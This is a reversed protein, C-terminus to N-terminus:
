LEILNKNVALFNSFVFHEDKYKYNNLKYLGNPRIRYIQFNLNEFLTYIDHFFTRSGVMTSGFEFQVIKTFKLAKKSGNLCHLEHGETDIKLVDIVRSNLENVWYDDFKIFEVLQSYKQMGEFEKENLREYISALQSKPDDFYINLTENKESLGKNNKIIKEVNSNIEINEFASKLPEFLHLEKVNFEKLLNSSYQGLNAGVDIALDIENLFYKLRKVEDQPKISGAGRGLLQNGLDVIKSIFIMESNINKSDYLKLLLSFLKFIIKHIYIM